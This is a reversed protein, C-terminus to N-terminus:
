LQSARDNTIQGIVSNIYNKKLECTKKMYWKEHVANSKTLEASSIIHAHLENKTLIRYFLKCFFQHFSSFAVNESTDEKFIHILNNTHLTDIAGM